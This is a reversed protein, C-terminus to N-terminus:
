DQTSEVIESVSVPGAEAQIQARRPSVHSWVIFGLTSFLLVLFGYKYAAFLWPQFMGVVGLVIGAILVSEIIKYVRPSVNNSLGTAVLVILTIFFLIIAVFILVFPIASLLVNGALQEPTARNQIFPGALLGLILLALAILPLAIPVRPRNKVM